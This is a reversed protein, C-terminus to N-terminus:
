AEQEVQWDLEVRALSDSGGDSKNVLPRDEPDSYSDSSVTLFVEDRRFEDDGM